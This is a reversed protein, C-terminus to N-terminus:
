LNYRKRALDVIEFILNDYGLDTAEAMRYLSSKNKMLGPLSNIELVYPIDDRLIIDVRAYDKLDLSNYARIATKEILELLDDSLRAPIFYQTHSKYYTKVEFSYFQFMDEPLGSLDIEQIGLARTDDGNGIIGVSFEKGNIFENILIPPNYIKLDESLKTKLDEVNFVLSDQYIGRSSGEDNPKIIVPFDVDLDDLDAMNYIAKFKPTPIGSAQFISSSYLKNSALAHGLVSSATYPIDAFELMAPFQALKSDGILGNSLNFVLDVKEDKLTSIINEDALLHICDYKSSLVEEIQGSTVQKQEDEKIGEESPIFDIRSKDTVVAIKM